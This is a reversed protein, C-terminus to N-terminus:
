EFCGDNGGLSIIARAIEIDEPVTIKFNSYSGAVMKVSIGAAEAAVCEDTPLKGNEVYREIANQIEGAQFVQPTQVLWLMERDLTGVINNENDM